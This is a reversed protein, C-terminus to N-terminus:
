TNGHVFQRWLNVLHFHVKEHFEVFLQVLDVTEVQITLLFYFVPSFGWLIQAVSKHIQHAVGPECFESPLKLLKPIM